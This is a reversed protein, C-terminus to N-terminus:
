GDANEVLAIFAEEMSGTGAQALLEVRSRNAIVSGDRMLIIDECHDAEDLVHSSVLITVGSQALGAFLHWLRRRLIPDLGVTPEDLVLLQPSGLLATALAARACEGGSLNRAQTDRHDDLDVATLVRDVEAGGLRLIRAFYRVNEAVSLDPYLAPTQTTYAVRSRLHRDGAPLGLVEVSGSVVRQVGVISRMLTSKGCGSPGLLGVLRGAGVSLSVSHLVRRNGRDVVLAAIEVTAMSVRNDDRRRRSVGAM